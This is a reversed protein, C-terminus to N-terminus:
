MSHNLLSWEVVSSKCNWKGLLLSPVMWDLKKYSIIILLFQGVTLFIVVYFLWCSSALFLKVNNIALMNGSTCLKGYLLALDLSLNWFAHWFKSCHISMMILLTATKVKVWPLADRRFSVATIPCGHRGQSVPHFIQDNSRNAFYIACMKSSRWKSHFSEIIKTAKTSRMIM